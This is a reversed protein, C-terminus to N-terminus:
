GTRGSPARVDGVPTMHIWMEVFVLEEWTVESDRHLTPGGNVEMFLVLYVQGDSPQRVQIRSKRDCATVLRQAILGARDITKALCRVSVRRRTTNAYLERGALGVDSLVLVGREQQIADAPGEVVGGPAAGMLEGQAEIYAKLLECPMLM